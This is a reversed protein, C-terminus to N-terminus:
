AGLVHVDYAGLARDRTVLVAELRAAQAVLMRDFPDRHHDPLAAAHEADDGTVPLTSFGSGTIAATLNGDLDIKGRARKLALEWITAASVLVANGPDTIARRAAESLEPDGRLWWVVAHADLLLIV